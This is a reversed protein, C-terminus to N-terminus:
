VILPSGDPPTRASRPGESQITFPPFSAHLDQIYSDRARALEEKPPGGTTRPTEPPGPM